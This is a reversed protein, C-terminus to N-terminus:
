SPRSIWTGEKLAHMASTLALDAARRQTDPSLAVIQECTGVGIVRRLVELGAFRVALERTDGLWGELWTDDGNHRARQPWLGRLTDAFGRWSTETLEAAAAALEDQGRSEFSHRALVLHGWLAGLDWAVPGYRSFEGDIVRLEDHRVMISGTHLDGHLLAERRTASCWRLTAVAAQAAPDSQVRARWAALHPDQTNRPDDSFPIDFVVERMMAEMAATSSQAAALAHEDASLTFISTAFASRAVMAGAQRAVVQNVEGGHLAERWLVHGDLHEMALVHQDADFAYLEPVFGRNCVAWERLFRAEQDVRDVTLEWDPLVRIWPMAQKLVISGASGRVGHVSNIKGEGFVEVSIVDGVRAALAPRAALYRDVTSPTLAQTSVSENV